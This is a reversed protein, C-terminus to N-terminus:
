VFHNKRPLALLSCSGCKKYTRWFDESGLMYGHPLRVECKIGEDCKVDIRVNEGEREWRVEIRGGPAEYSGEAFDLDAVFNPKVVINNADDGMPNVNIGVVHRMFWHNVDGFFHHNQSKCDSVNKRFIEPLSTMGQNIYYAYSPFDNKMIMKYALEAEGFAALVHFIVRLCLFGGEFNDDSMHVLQALKRTAETKESPEFINYYIALAQGSQSMDNVTMTEFDILNKRIAAKVEEGLQRAFSANLSNGI